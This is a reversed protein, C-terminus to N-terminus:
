KYNIVNLFQESTITEPTLINNTGSNENELKGSFHLKIWSSIAINITNNINAPQKNIAAWLFENSRKQLKSKISDNAAQIILLLEKRKKRFLKLSTNLIQPNDSDSLALLITGIATTRQIAIQDSNSEDEKQKIVKKLCFIFTDLLHLDSELNNKLIQKSYTPKKQNSSSDSNFQLNDSISSVILVFIAFLPNTVFPLPVEGTLKELAELHVKNFVKEFKEIELQIKEKNNNIDIKNEKQILKFLHVMVKCVLDACFSVRLRMCLAIAIILLKADFEININSINRSDYIFSLAATTAILVTDDHSNDNMVKIMLNLIDIPRKYISFAAFNIVSSPKKM